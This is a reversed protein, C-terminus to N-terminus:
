RTLYSSVLHKNVKVKDFRVACSNLKFYQLIQEEQGQYTQTPVRAQRPGAPVRGPEPDPGTRVARGPVGQHLYTYIYYM